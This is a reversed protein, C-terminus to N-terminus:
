LMLWWSTEYIQTGLGMDAYLLVNLVPLLTVNILSFLLTAAVRDCHDELDLFTSPFGRMSSRILKTSTHISETTHRETVLRMCSWQKRCAAVNVGEMGDTEVYYLAGFLM